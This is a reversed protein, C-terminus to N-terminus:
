LVVGGIELARKRNKYDRFQNVEANVAERECAWMDTGASLDDFFSILDDTTKIKPGTRFHDPNSMAFGRGDKYDEIDDETFGIPRNLLIYDLFVSSYDTIIADASGLLRYLDLGSRQFGEHTYIQLNSYKTIPVNDTDQMPHLKIYLMTNNKILADNLANLEDNSIVPLFGGTNQVDSYGLKKSQRFTPMWLVLKETEVGLEKKSYPNIMVDTRPQGCISIRDKGCDFTESWFARFIESTSLATTYYAKKYDRNMERKQRGDADKFPSGHWMQVVRQKKSPYIPLKGFCYFVHSARLYTLVGKLNSEVRVNYPAQGAMQENQSRVIKYKKNYGSSIMYDYIYYINDRFGLDTYLLILKENKPIVQNVLSLAKFVTNMLIGKLMKNRIM